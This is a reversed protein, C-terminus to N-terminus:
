PWRGISMLYGILPDENITIKLDRFDLISDSRVCAQLFFDNKILDELDSPPLVPVMYGRVESFYCLIAVHNQYEGGRLVAAHVTGFTQVTVQFWSLGQPLSDLIFAM